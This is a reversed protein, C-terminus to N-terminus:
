FFCFCFRVASINARSDYSSFSDIQAFGVSTYRTSFFYLFFPCFCLVLPRYNDHSWRRLRWGSRPVCVCRGRGSFLTLSRISLLSYVFHSLSLSGLSTSQVRPKLPPQVLAASFGCIPSPGGEDVVHGASPGSGSGSKM